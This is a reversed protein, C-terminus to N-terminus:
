VHGYHRVPIGYKKATDVANRTGKSNGLDDHFAVVLDPSLEIMRRNRIVGAPKGVVEKCQPPCKENHSWHAPWEIVMFGLKQGELAAITDAGRAGGEILVVPSTAELRITNLASWIMAQDTWNRDGTVMVKM